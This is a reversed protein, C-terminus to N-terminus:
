YIVIYLGDGDDNPYIAEVDWNDYESEFSNKGDYIALTEGEYYDILEVRQNDGIASYLDQLKLTSSM